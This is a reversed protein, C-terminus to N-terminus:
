KKKADAFKGEFYSLVEQVTRAAGKKDFFVRKNAKAQSPSVFDKAPEGKPAQLIDGAGNRGLFHYMYLEHDKPKRGLDSIAREENKATFSTAVERAKIPDTRDALTYKLGARKTADEWTGETFQFLGLASSTKAKAEPDNGSEVIALKDLYTARDGPVELKGQASRKSDDAKSSFDIGFFSLASGVVGKPTPPATEVVPATPAVGFDVGFFDSAKGM